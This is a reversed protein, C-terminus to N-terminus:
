LTWCCILFWAWLKFPSFAVNYDKTIQNDRIGELKTMGKRDHNPV